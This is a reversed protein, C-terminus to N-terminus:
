DKEKTVTSFKHCASCIIGITVTTASIIYGCNDCRVHTSSGKPKYGCNDCRVHTSSGKPKSPKSFSFPLNKYHDARRSERHIKENHKRLGGPPIWRRDTTGPELSQKTSENALVCKKCDNKYQENLNM